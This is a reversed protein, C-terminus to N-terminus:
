LQHLFTSIKVLRSYSVWTGAHSEWDSAQSIARWAVGREETVAEEGVIEAVAEEEGAVVEGEEWAVVGAAEVVAVVEHTVSGSPM